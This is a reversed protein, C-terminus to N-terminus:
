KYLTALPTWFWLWSYLWNMKSLELCMYIYLFLTVYIYCQHSQFNSAREICPDDEIEFALYQNWFNSEYSPHTPTWDNLNNMSKRFTSMSVWWETCAQNTKILTWGVYKWKEEAWFAMVVKLLICSIVCLICTMILLIIRTIKCLNKFSISLINTMYTSTRVLIKVKWGTVGRSLECKLCAQYMHFTFCSSMHLAIFKKYM